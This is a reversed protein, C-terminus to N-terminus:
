VNGYDNADHGQGPPIGSEQDNDCSGSRCECFHNCRNQWCWGRERKGDCTVTDRTCFACHTGLTILGECDCDDVQVLLHDRM